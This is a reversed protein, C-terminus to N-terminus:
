RTSGERPVPAPLPSGTTLDPRTVLAPSALEVAGDDPVRASAARRRHRYASPVRTVPVAAACAGGAPPAIPYDGTFCATCLKARPQGSAEVMGGVSLYGLTDAGSRFLM